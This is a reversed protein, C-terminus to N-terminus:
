RGPCLTANGRGHAFAVAGMGMGLVGFHGAGANDIVAGGFADGRLGDGPDFIEGAPAGWKIAVIEAIELQAAFRSM